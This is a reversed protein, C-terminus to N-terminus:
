VTTKIVGVMRGILWRHATPASMVVVSYSVVISMSCEKVDCRVIRSNKKKKKIIRRGGLDVRKGEVVSKRDGRRRVRDDEREAGAARRPAQREGDGREAPRRADHADAHCWPEDRITPARHAESARGPPQEGIPTYRKGSGAGRLHHIPQAAAVTVRRRLPLRGRSERRLVAEDEIGGVPCLGEGKEQLACRAVHSPHHEPMRKRDGNGLRLTYRSATRAPRASRTDRRIRHM